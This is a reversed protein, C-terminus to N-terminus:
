PTAWFHLLICSKTLWVCCYVSLHSLILFHVIMCLLAHFVKFSTHPHWTFQVTKSTCAVFVYTFMFKYVYCKNSLDSSKMYDFTCPKFKAGASWEGFALLIHTFYSIFMDLSKWFNAHIYGLVDPNPKQHIYIM